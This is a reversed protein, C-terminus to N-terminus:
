EFKEPPGSQFVATDDAYKHFSCNHPNIVDSSPNPIYHLCFQGWYLARLFETYFHVRIQLPGTLSSLNFDNLFMHVFGNSFM